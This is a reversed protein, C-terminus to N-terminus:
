VTGLISIDLSIMLAGFCVGIAVAFLRYGRLVTSGEVTAEPGSEEDKTTADQPPPVASTQEHHNDIDDHDGAPSIPHNPPYDPSAVTAPEAKAPM